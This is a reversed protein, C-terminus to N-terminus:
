IEKETEFLKWIDRIKRDKIIRIMRDEIIRDEIEKKNNKEYLIIDLVKTKPKSLNKGRWYLIKKTTKTKFISVVKDKM